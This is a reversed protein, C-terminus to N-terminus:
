GLNRQGFWAWRVLLGWVVLLLIKAWLDLDSILVSRIFVYSSVIAIVVFAVIIAVIFWARFPFKM